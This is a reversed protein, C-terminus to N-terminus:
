VYHKQTARMEFPDAYRFDLAFKTNTYRQHNSLAIELHPVTRGSIIRPKSASMEYWLRKRVLRTTDEAERMFMDRVRARVWPLDIQASRDMNSQRRQLRM